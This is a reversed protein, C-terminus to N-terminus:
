RLILPLYLYHFTSATAGVKLVVIDYNGSYVYLPNTSDDGQWSAYGCGTIYVREGCGGCACLAM